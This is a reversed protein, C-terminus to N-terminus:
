RNAGSRSDGQECGAWEAALDPSNGDPAVPFRVVKQLCAAEDTDFEHHILGQLRLRRHLPQFNDSFRFDALELAYTLTYFATAEGCTVGAVVTQDGGTLESVFPLLGQVSCVDPRPLLAYTLERGGTFGAYGGTKAAAASFPVDLLVIAGHGLGPGPNNIGAVFVEQDGDGDVDVPLAHKLGGPHWYEDVLAGTDADLLVVQSPYWLAHRALSLAYHRGGAHLPVVLHSAYTASFDRGGWSRARGFDFRWRETGNAAYCILHGTRTRDQSIPVDVLVERRGDGDIDAILAPATDSGRLEQEAPGIGPVERSWMMRGDAGFVQITQGNLRFTAPERGTGATLMWLLTGVVPVAVLAAAVFVMGWRRRTPLGDGSSERGPERRRVWEDLEDAYVLPQQRGELPRHIPLPNRQHWRQATRVDVGLHAAIAKWSRLLLRDPPSAADDSM